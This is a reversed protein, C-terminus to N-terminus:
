KKIVEKKLHIEDLIDKLDEEGADHNITPSTINNTL